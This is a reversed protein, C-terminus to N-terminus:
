VYQCVRERCSARGIEGFSNYDIPSTQEKNTHGVGLIQIGDREVFASPAAGFVRVEISWFGVYTEGIGLDGSSPAVTLADIPVALSSSTVVEGLSESTFYGLGPSPSTTGFRYSNVMMSM